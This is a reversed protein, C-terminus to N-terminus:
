YLSYKIAIYPSFFERIQIDVQHDEINVAKDNPKDHGPTWFLDTMKIGIDYSLREKTYRLGFGSSWGMYQDGKLPAGDQNMFVKAFVLHGFGYAKFLEQSDYNSYFPIGFEPGGQVQVMNSVIKQSNAPASLTNTQDVFQYEAKRFLIFVTGNLIQNWFLPLHGAIGFAHSFEAKLNSLSVTDASPGNTIINYDLKKTEANVYEAMIGLSPRVEFEDFEQSYLLNTFILLSFVLKM